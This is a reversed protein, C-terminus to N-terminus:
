LFIPANKLCFQLSWGGERNARIYLMMYLVPGILFDVWLKLSISTASIKDLFIQLDKPQNINQTYTPLLEEVIMRLTRVNQPFNKETLDKKLVEFHLNLVEELCTNEMLSEVCRIFSM